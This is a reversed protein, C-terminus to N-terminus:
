KQNNKTTKFVIARGNIGDEFSITTTIESKAGVVNLGHVRSKNLHKKTETSDTCFLTKIIGWEIEIVKDINASNKSTRECGRGRTKWIIWIPVCQNITSEKKLKM